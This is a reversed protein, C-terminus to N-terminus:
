APPRTERFVGRAAAAALTREVDVVLPGKLSLEIEAREGANVQIEREGDVAIVCPTERVAVRQEPGLMGYGTVPVRKVLGPGIAARVYFPADEGPEDVAVQMGKPDAISIYRLGGVVSAIGINSAAGRTAVIQKIKGVDWVARSGTFQDALVVADILAIDVPQDNLYIILKKTRLLSEEPAVKGTAVLGAALGAVTGEVMVPFVNNTGTSVPLLPVVGAGKAVVRNTGDGGLTIICKVGADAMLKAARRSDEQNANIPMDLLRTEMNLGGQGALGDLARQYFGFYDPMFWVREVGLSDLGLLIRRLLNVKENNDFVTAHAVLRRIDKGSAPNAIIGVSM